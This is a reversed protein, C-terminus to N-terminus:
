QKKRTKPEYTIGYEAAIEKSIYAEMYDKYMTGKKSKRWVYCAGSAKNLIIPYAVNNSDYWLHSTVLTDKPARASTNQHYNGDADKWSGQGFASTMSFCLALTIIIRKM